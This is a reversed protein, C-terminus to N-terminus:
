SVEIVKKRSKFGSVIRAKRSFHKSLVKEVELNAKGDLPKAKVSVRYFDGKVVENKSSNTKVVINIRM